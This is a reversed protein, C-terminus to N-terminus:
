IEVNIVTNEDLGSNAAFAAVATRHSQWAHRDGPLRKRTRPPPFPQSFWNRSAAMRHVLPHFATQRSKGNM